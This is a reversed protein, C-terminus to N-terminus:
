PHDLLQVLFRFAKSHGPLGDDLKPYRLSQFLCRLVLLNWCPAARALILGFRPSPAKFYFFIFSTSAVWDTRWLALGVPSSSLWCTRLSGAHTETIFPASGPTALTCATLNFGSIHITTTSLSLRGERPFLFGVYHVLRFAATGEQTVALILPCWRPRLVPCTSMPTARSSPLAQHRGAIFQRDNLAAPQSLLGPTSV